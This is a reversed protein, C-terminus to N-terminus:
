CTKNVYVMSIPSTSRVESCLKLNERDVHSDASLPSELILLLESGIENQQASTGLAVVHLALIPLLFSATSIDEIKIARSLPPFLLTANKNYPKGLLDLVFSKLWNRYRTGTSFFPYQYQTKHMDSVFYMSRLFPTLTVRVPEPLSLWKQYTADTATTDGSRRHRSVVERFDCKRLLEQMTFSLLGQAKTNNASLFSKVLIEELIFLVFDTTDPATEFNSVVVMERLRRTASIRNSDLAGILGLCLASQRGIEPHSESFSVCADLISRLLEGVIADPQESIASAQLFSQHQRLYSTLETLAQSVVSANEHKIRTCFVQYNQRLSSRARIAALDAEHKAFLPIAALSPLSDIRLRVIDPRSKILHEVLEYARQQTLTNFTTWNQIIVAFTSELLPEVEENDLVIIMAKWASFAAELLDAHAFTSQLCACIQLINTHVAIYLYMHEVQPLAANIHSKGVNIMEEIGRLCRIKEATPQWGRFENIFDSFHALLGLIHQELFSGVVSTGRKNSSGSAQIALFHLAHRIQFITLLIM